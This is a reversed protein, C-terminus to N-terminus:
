MDIDIKTDMHTYFGSVLNLQCNFLVQLSIANVTICYFKLNVMHRHFPYLRLFLQINLTKDILHFYNQYLLQLQVTRSSLRKMAQNRFHM